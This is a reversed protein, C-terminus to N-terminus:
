NKKKYLCEKRNDNSALPDMELAIIDGMYPAYLAKTKYNLKSEESDYISLENLTDGTSSEDRVAYYFKNLYDRQFELKVKGTEVITLSKLILDYLYIHESTQIILARQDADNFLSVKVLDTLLDRLEESM